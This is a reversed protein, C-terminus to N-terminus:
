GRPAAALAAELEEGVAPGARFAGSLLKADDARSKHHLYRMTTKIDAHGMWHQVQVISARNIALSGFTHRLDHFRLPRLKAAGVAAQYRRRLASGDLHTGDPACFVLDHPATHEARQALRALAGAVQDVMPETRGKGSKPTTAQGHSLGEVVRISQNEFDVDRWRLALLEGRRLGAFAAALYIAADQQDEARRAIELRARLQHDRVAHRQPRRHFGEEACRVLAMVEEPAYFQFRAADYRTRLRKVQAAPNERLDHAERGREFIAHLVALLKNANRKSVGRDRVLEARWREIRAPTISEIRLEGFAPRLHAEVVSRYDVRTAPKWDREVEGWALWDDALAAFTLGTRQQAVAGRRVDTLIAELAAKAEREGFYGPDPPGKGRWAPGLRRQHQGNGDRWKAYWTAGRKGEYCWVHGSIRATM